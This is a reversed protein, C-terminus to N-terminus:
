WFCLVRIEISERVEEDETGKILPSGHGTGWSVPVKRGDIEMEKAGKGMEGGDSDALKIVLVEEKKQEPLWFWKQKAYGKEGEPDPKIMLADVKYERQPEAPDPRDSAARYEARIFNSIPVSGSLSVALPDRKVTRLPRWISYSAYRPGTYPADADQRSDLAKLAPAAAADIDARGQHRVINTLGQLTYDCHVGRVPEFSSTATSGVVPNPLFHM